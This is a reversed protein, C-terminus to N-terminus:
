VCRRELQAGNNQQIFFLEEDISSDDDDDDDDDNQEGRHQLEEDSRSLSRGLCARPLTSRVVANTQVRERAVDCRSYHIEVSNSRTHAMTLANGTASKSLEPAAPQNTRTVTEEVGNVEIKPPARAYTKGDSPLRNMVAYCFALSLNIVNDNTCLSLFSFFRLFVFLM